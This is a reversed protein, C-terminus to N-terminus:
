ATSLPHGQALGFLDAADNSATNRSTKSTKLGAEATLYNQRAGSTCRTSGTDTRRVGRNCISGRGTRLACLYFEIIDEKLAFVVGIYSSRNYMFQCVYDVTLM